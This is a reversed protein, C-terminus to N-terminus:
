QKCHLITNYIPWLLSQFQVHQCNPTIIMVKLLREKDMRYVRDFLATSKLSLIFHYFSVLTFLARIFYQIGLITHVCVSVCM